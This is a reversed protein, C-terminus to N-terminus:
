EQTEGNTLKDYNDNFTISELIFKYANKPLNYKECLEYSIQRIDKNEDRRKALEAMIEKELKEDLDYEDRIDDFITYDLNDNEFKRTMKSGDVTKQREEDTKSAALSFDIYLNILEDEDFNYIKGIISMTTLQFPKNEPKFIDFVSKYNNRVERIKYLPHPIKGLIIYASYFISVHSFTLFIRQRTWERKHAYAFM